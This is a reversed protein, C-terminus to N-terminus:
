MGLERYLFAFMDAMKNIVPGSKGAGGHGAKREVRLILPNTQKKNELLRAFMKYTHMPHVRDDHDATMFMMSPYSEEKVNHYPSYSMLYDRMKKNEPDGYEHIWYRGGNFLHFKLMDTVPVEILAAKFLKPYRLSMVSMLLGGNSGGWVGLKEPATYGCFVLHELVAAFDEFRKHQKNKIIAEHWKKGFEGGGRINALVFVGGDEIFPIISNRFEPLKSNGFGGYANVLTPSIKRNNKRKLIFIPIRTKDKSIVWEQKVELDNPIKIKPKWYLGSKLTKFDFRYITRPINLSSFQYFFERGDYQGSHSNVSGLGPLEVSIKKKSDLNILYVKSCVNEIYELALYKKFLAFDDIKYKSEPVFTEWQGLSDKTIKRRLIKYNPAKHNTFLYIYGAEARARSEANMGKTINIFNSKIAHTDRFYVQTNRHLDRVTVWQYRGDHSRSMTPFSDKVLGRGFFMEDNEVPQGLTHYYIRRFYKEEKPSHGPEGRMYWFGTSDVNWTQIYPYRESTITDKLFKGTSVDLVKIICRDNSTKSFEIAVYKADESPRFGQITGFTLKNPDLLLKAEGNLGNKIYLPAQGEGAKKKRFFYINGRVSPLSESDVDILEKLRKKLRARSNTGSLYKSTIKEQIDVWEKTRGSDSELWHYKDSQEM